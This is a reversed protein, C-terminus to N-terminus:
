VTVRQTFGLPRLGIGFSVLTLSLLCSLRALLSVEMQASYPFSQRIENNIEM